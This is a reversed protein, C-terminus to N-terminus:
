EMLYGSIRVDGVVSTRLASKSVRSSALRAGRTGITAEVATTITRIEIEISRALLM